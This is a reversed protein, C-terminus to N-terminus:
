TVENEKRANFSGLVADNWIGVYEGNVPTM